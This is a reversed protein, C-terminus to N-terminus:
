VLNEAFKVLTNAITKIEQLSTSVNQTKEAQKSAIAEISTIKENINQGAKKLSGLIKEIEKLSSASNEALKRIEDAVVGFGKGLEGVRAAEIAANLGLLNTQATIKQIVKLVQDTQGM